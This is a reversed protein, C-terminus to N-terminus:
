RTSFFLRSPPVRMSQGTLPQPKTFPSSSAYRYSSGPNSRLAGAPLACLRATAAPRSARAASLAASPPSRAGSRPYEREASPLPAPLNQPRRRRPPPRAPHPAPIKAPRGSENQASGSKRRRSRRPLRRAYPHATRPAADWATPCTRRPPASAPLLYEPRM